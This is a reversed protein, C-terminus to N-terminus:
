ISIDIGSYIKSLKSKDYHEKISNTVNLTANELNFSTYGFM